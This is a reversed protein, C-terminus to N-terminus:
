MLYRCTFRAVSVQKLMAAAATPIAAARSELIYLEAHQTLPLVSFSGKGHVPWYDAMLQRYLLVLCVYLPILM